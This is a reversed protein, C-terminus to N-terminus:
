KLCFELGGFIKFMAFSIVSNELFYGMVPNVEEAFGGEVAFITICLDLLNLIVLTKLYKDHPHKEIM